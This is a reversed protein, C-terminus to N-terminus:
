CRELNLAVTITVKTWIAFCFCYQGSHLSRTVELEILHAFQSEQNWAPASFHALISMVLQLLEQIHRSQEVLDLTFRVEEGPRETGREPKGRVGRVGTSLFLIRLM